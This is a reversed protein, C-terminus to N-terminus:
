NKILTIIVSRANYNKVCIVHCNLKNISISMVFQEQPAAPFFRSARITCQGCCIMGNELSVNKAQQPKVFEEDKDDSNLSIM